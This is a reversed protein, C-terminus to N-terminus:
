GMAMAGCGAFLEVCNLRGNNASDLPSETEVGAVVPTHKEIHGELSRM